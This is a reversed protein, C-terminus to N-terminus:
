EDSLIMSDIIIVTSYDTSVMTGATFVLWNEELKECEVATISDRIVSHYSVDLLADQIYQREASYYSHYNYDMRQRLAAYKGIFPPSGDGKWKYNESTSKSFDYDPPIRFSEKKNAPFASSSSPIFEAADDSDKNNNKRASGISPKAESM